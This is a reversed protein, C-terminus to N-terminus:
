LRVAIECGMRGLVPLGPSLHARQSLLIRLHMYAAMKSLLLYSHSPHVRLEEWSEQALKPCLSQSPLPHGM